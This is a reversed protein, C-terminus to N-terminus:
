RADGPTGTRPIQGVARAPKDFLFFRWIAVLARKTANRWVSYGASQAPRETTRSRWKSIIYQTAPLTTQFGGRDILMLLLGRLLYIGRAMLLAWSTLRGWSSFHYVPQNSVFQRLEGEVTRSDDVYTYTKPPRVTAYRLRHASCYIRRTRGGAARIPEKSGRGM